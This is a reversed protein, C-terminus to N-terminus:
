LAGALLADDPAPAFDVKADLLIETLVVLMEHSIPVPRSNLTMMPHQIYHKYMSSGCWLCTVSVRLSVESRLQTASEENTSFCETCNYRTRMYTDICSCYRRRYM